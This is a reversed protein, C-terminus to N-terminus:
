TGTLHQRIRKYKDIVDKLCSGSYAYKKSTPTRPIKLDYRVRALGPSKRVMNTSGGSTYRHTNGNKTQFHFGLIRMASASVSADM